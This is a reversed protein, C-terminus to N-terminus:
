EDRGGVLVFRFHDACMLFRGIRVDDTRDRYQEDCEWCWGDPKSEYQPRCNALLAAREWRDFSEPEESRWADEFHQQDHSSYSFDDRAFRALDACLGRILEKTSDLAMTSYHAVPDRMQARMPARREVHLRDLAIDELDAVCAARQLKATPIDRHM